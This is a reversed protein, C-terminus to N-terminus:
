GSTSRRILQVPGRQRSKDAPQGGGVQDQADASETPQKTPSVHGRRRGGISQSLGVRGVGRDGTSDQRRGGRDEIQGVPRNSCRTVTSRPRSRPPRQRPWPRLRRHIIASSGRWGEAEATLPNNILGGLHGLGTWQLEYITTDPWRSKPRLPWHIVADM